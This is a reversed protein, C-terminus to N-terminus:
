LETFESLRKWASFGVNGLFGLFTLLGKPVVGNEHYLFCKSFRRGGTEFRVYKAVDGGLVPRMNM